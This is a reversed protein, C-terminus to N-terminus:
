FTVNNREDKKESPVPQGREAWFDLLPSLIKTQVYAKRSAPSTLKLYETKHADIIARENENYVRGAPAAMFFFSLLFSMNCVRKNFVCNTRQTYVEHGFNMNFYFVNFIFLVCTKFMLCLFFLLFFMLCDTSLGDGAWRRGM